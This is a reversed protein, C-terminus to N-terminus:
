FKVGIVSLIVGAIPALPLVPWLIIIVVSVIGAAAITIVGAILIFLRVIAGVIRSVLRDVAMRLRIELPASKSSGASIQRFPAFLTKLLLGISFFDALNALHQRTRKAFDKWGSLYWWNLMSVM